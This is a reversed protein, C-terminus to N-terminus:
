KPVLNLDIKVTVTDKVKIVLFPKVVIGFDSRQITYTSTVHLNPQAGPTATKEAEIKLPIVLDKTVGHITMRVAAQVTATEGAAINPAAGEIRLLTLEIDPFAVSNPGTKPLEHNKDCVHDEPFQSNSYDIGLSERMHCDRTSDGTTMSAIPIKLVVSRAEVPALNVIVDGAVQSSFGHHTGATYPISFRIGTDATSKPVIKYDQAALAQPALATLALALIMSNKTTM